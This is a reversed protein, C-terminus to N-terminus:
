ITSLLERTENEIMAAQTEPPLYSFAAATQAQGAELATLRDELTALVLNGNKVYRATIGADENTWIHTVSDYTHLQRIKRQVEPPYPEFVPIALPYTVKIPNSSLHEMWAAVSEITDYNEDYVLLTQQADISIGRKLAYTENATIGAYHSCLINDNASSKIKTDYIRMRYKGSLAPNTFWKEDPSGDYIDTVCNRLVGIQGDQEYGAVDCLWKNGAEDVYNYDAGDSVQLGALGGPTPIPLTQPVYPVFQATNANDATTLVIDADIDVTVNANGANFYIFIIHGEEPSFKCEDNFSGPYIASLSKRASRDYVRLEMGLHKGKLKITYTNPKLFCQAFYYNTGRTTTGNLKIHSNASKATIGDFTSDATHYPYPLLNGSCATVGVSGGSGTTELEQPYEPSPSPAAGTYPEWPLATDGANLMINSYTAVGGAKAVGVRFAIFMTDESTTFTLKGKTSETNITPPNIGNLFVWVLGDAGNHEWSLTYTTNSTVPIHVANEGLYYTYADDEIATLTISNNGYIATGKVCRTFRWEDFNFLQAGTTKVQGTKGYVGMGLLPWEASDRCTVFEGSAEGTVAVKGIDTYAPATERIYTETDVTYELSIVPQLPDDTWIHTTGAYSCLANMASQEAASLPVWEEEITKYQYYLPKGETNKQVLWAKMEDANAFGWYTDANTVCINKGEPNSRGIYKSTCYNCYVEAKIGMPKELAGFVLIPYFRNDVSRSGDEVVTAGGYAWGWVGDRCTLKDWQTLPRDSTVTATRGKYPEWPLASSGSNLMPYLTYNIVTGASANIQAYCSINKETGDVVFSQNNFYKLTGDAKEIRVYAILKEQIGSVYYTGPSLNISIRPTFSIKDILTGNATIIGNKNIYRIGGATCEEWTINLLNPEGCSTVKVEYKRDKNLVGVNQLPVEAEPAPVGDQVTMGQVDLKRYGKGDAADELTLWSGAAERSIASATTRQLQATNDRNAHIQERDSSIEAAAAQTEDRATETKVQATEAGARATEAKGQATEAATKASQADTRAAEAATQAAEAKKQAAEAATQSTQAPKIAAEVTQVARRRAQTIATEADTMKDAVRSDFGTVQANVNTESVAAAQRSTDAAQAYGAASDKSSEAAEAATRTDSHLQEVDLQIAEVAERSEEVTQRDAAVQEAKNAVSDHMTTYEPTLDGPLTLTQWEATVKGPVPIVGTVTSGLETVCLYSGGQYTVLDLYEYTTTSSYDGRPNPSINGLDTEMFDNVTQM